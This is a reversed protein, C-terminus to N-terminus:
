SDDLGRLDWDPDQKALLDAIEDDDLFDKEEQEVLSRMIDSVANALLTGHQEPIFANLIPECGSLPGAARDFEALEAHVHSLRLVAEVTSALWHAITALETHPSPARPPSDPHLVVKEPQAHVLRNRATFLDDLDDFVPDGPVFPNGGDALKGALFFKSRVKIQSVPTYDAEGMIRLLAVNVYAEAAFACYLTAAVSPPPLPFVVPNTAARALSHAAAFLYEDAHDHQYWSIVPKAPTM